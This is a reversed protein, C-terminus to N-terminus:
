VDPRQNNILVSHPHVTVVIKLQDKAIGTLGRDLDVFAIYEDPLSIKEDNPAREEM